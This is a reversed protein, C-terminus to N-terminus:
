DLMALLSLVQGHPVGILHEGKPETRLVLSALCTLYLHKQENPRMLLLMSNKIRTKNKCALGLRSDKIAFTLGPTLKVLMKHAVKAGFDERWFIVFGFQLCMFAAAFFKRM